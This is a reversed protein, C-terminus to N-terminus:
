VFPTDFSVYIRGGREEIDLLQLSNIQTADNVFEMRIQAEGEHDDPPYLQSEPTDGPLRPEHYILVNGPSIEPARPHYNSQWHKFPAALDTDGCKDLNELCSEPLDSSNCNSSKCIEVGGPVDWEGVPVETDFIRCKQMERGDKSCQIKSVGV